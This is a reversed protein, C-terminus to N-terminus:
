RGAYWDIGPDIPGAYPAMVFKRLAILIEPQPGLLRTAQEEIMRRYIWRNVAQKSDEEFTKM